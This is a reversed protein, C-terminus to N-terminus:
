DLVAGGQRLWWGAADRTLQPRKADAALTELAPDRRMGLGYLLARDLLSQDGALRDVLVTLSGGGAPLHGLTLAVDNALPPDATEVWGLLTPEEAPNALYRLLHAARPAIPDELGAQEIEEVLVAALPERFPSGSLALASHHRHESRASFLAERIIRPTLRDDDYLERAPMRQKLADAMRQSIRKAADPRVWEGHAAVMALQRHGSLGRSAAMLRSRASEPMAVLLEELGVLASPRESMATLLTAEVQDLQASTFHGMEVKYAVPALCAAFVQESESDVFKELLVDAAEPSESIELVAVPDNVIQVAPDSLYDGIARLVWAQAMQNELLLRIVEFRQLYALGVSRAMQDVLRGCLDQWVSAPVYISDLQAIHHGFETWHSGTASGALLMEFLEDLRQHFAPSQSDLTPTWVRGHGDTYARRLENAVSSLQGRHLGLVQEYATFVAFRPTVKGSEWRSVASRDAQLGAESLATNFRLGRSLEPDPHHLRSMLLLWGVRASVDVTSARLSTTDEPM